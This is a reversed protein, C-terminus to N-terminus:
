PGTFEGLRDMAKRLSKLARQTLAVVGAESRGTCRATEALALGRFYRLEIVQRQAANLQALCTLLAGIAEEQRLIRSPTNSKSYLQTLLGAFSGAPPLPAAERAVNRRARHATRDADVLSHDLITTLWSLFADAGRQEFASIHQFVRCYVDQLIDEPSLRARLAPDLRAAARAALVPHHCALLKALALRDGAQAARILEAQDLPM